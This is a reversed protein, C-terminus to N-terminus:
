YLIHWRRVCTYEWIMGGTSRGLNQYEFFSKLFRLKKELFLFPFVFYVAELMSLCPCPEQHYVVGGLPLKNELCFWKHKLYLYYALCSTALAKTSTIRQSSANALVRTGVPRITSHLCDDTLPSLAM